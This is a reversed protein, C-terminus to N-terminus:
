EMNQSQYGFENSTPAIILYRESWIDFISLYWFVIQEFVIVVMKTTMTKSCVAVTHAVFYFEVNPFTGQHVYWIDYQGKIYIQEQEM